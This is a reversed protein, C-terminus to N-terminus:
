AAAKPWEDHTRGDPAILRWEGQQPKPTPTDAFPLYKDLTSSM